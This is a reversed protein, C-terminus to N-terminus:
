TCLIYKCINKKNEKSESVDVLIGTLVCNGGVVVTAGVSGGVSGLVVTM